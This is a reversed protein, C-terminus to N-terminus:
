RHGPAAEDHHWEDEDLTDPKQLIANPIGIKGIDHLLAVDALQKRQTTDLKLEDAVAMTM